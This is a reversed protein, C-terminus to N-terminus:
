TRVDFQPVCVDEFAVSAPDRAQGNGELAVGPATLRLAEAPCKGGTPGPLRSLGEGAYTRRARHTRARSGGVFRSSSDAIVGREREHEVHVKGCRGRGSALGSVR